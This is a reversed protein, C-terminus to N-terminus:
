NPEGGVKLGKSHSIKCVGESLEKPIVDKRFLPLPSPYAEHRTVLPFHRSFACFLPNSIEPKLNSLQFCLPVPVSPRLTASSLSRPSLPYESSPTFSVPSSGELSGENRLTFLALLTFSPPSLQAM